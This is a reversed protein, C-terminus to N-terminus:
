AAQAPRQPTASGPTATMQGGPPTGPPTGTAQPPPNATAPQGVPRAPIFSVKYGVLDYLARVGAALEVLTKPDSNVVDIVGRWADALPTGKAPGPEAPQTPASTTATPKPAKTAERRAAEIVRNKKAM